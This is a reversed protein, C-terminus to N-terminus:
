DLGGFKPPAPYKSVPENSNKDKKKKKMDASSKEKKAMKLDEKIKQGKKTKGLM